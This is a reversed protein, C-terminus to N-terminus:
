PASCVGIPIVSFGSVYLPFGWFWGSLLCGRRWLALLLMVARWSWGPSLLSGSGSVITHTLGVLEGVTAVTSISLLLFCNNESAPYYPLVSASVPHCWPCPWLTPPLLVCVRASCLTQGFKLCVRSARPRQLVHIAPCRVCSTPIACM